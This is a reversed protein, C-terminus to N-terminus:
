NRGANILEKPNIILLVSGDGMIATGSFLRLGALFGTFPKLIIDATEHFRDVIVGILEGKVSLVLVAYEGDENTLHQQDIDLLANLYFIPVVKNRLVTTMKGKITQIDKKSVRVTEMVNEMPIGFKEGASEIIMVHSVAMSLPLSLTIVTGKDLTSKVSVSGGFKEVTTKVVDMGVGRGSLDSAVEKTSFGPLFILNLAETDKMKKFQEESILGKEYAKLKLKEPDIGRGDDIVEIVVQDAEQKARLIITGIEPKGKAVREEPLEIGHDLSNRIIHILPDALAEIVNKDAETEEGELILKVKKGLKKSLDRVLRPFRQFVTSVPVMRVQMIADQMEESIRNLVSYQAKLEKSLEPVGYVADAKQALYALSNKAVVFEGVLNMLRDIKPEDVKLVRSTIPTASPEPKIQEPQEPQEPRKQDKRFM